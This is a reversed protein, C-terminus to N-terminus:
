VSRAPESSSTLARDARQYDFRGKLRNWPQEMFRWSLAAIAVTVAMYIPLRLWDSNPLALHLLPAGKDRILGPVNFHYVYIGYSIRGLYQLVSSDLVRGGLGKFGDSAGAILWVFTLGMGTESFLVAFWDKGLHRALLCAITLAPGLALGSSVLRKGLQQEAEGSVRLLALLGGLGLTDLHAPMMMAIQHGSLGFLLGFGRLLPGLLVIYMLITPLVRPRVFLVIFPWTLYFQEEVALSWFHALLVEFLKPKIAFLFNQLYLAFVRLYQRSIPLMVAIAALYAYYVPVLRIFRRAFFPRLLEIVPRGRLEAERRARFLIGTILFGSLVFFLRVGLEGWPVDQRLWDRTKVFHEIMVILVAFARLSNLQPLHRYAGAPPAAKPEVM